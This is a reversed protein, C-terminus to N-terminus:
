IVEHHLGAGRRAHTEHGRHGPRRLLPPRRALGREVEHHLVHVPGVALEGELPDRELLRGLVHGPAVPDGDQAVGLAAGDAERLADCSTGSRRPHPFGSFLMLLRMSCSRFRPCLTHSSKMRRPCRTEPSNSRRISIPTAPTVEFGVIKWWAM